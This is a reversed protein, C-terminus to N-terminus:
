INTTFYFLAFVCNLKIRSENEYFVKEFVILGVIILFEFFDDEPTGGGYTRAPEFFPPRMAIGCVVKPGARVKWEDGLGLCWM